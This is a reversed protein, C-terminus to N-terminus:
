NNLILIIIFWVVIYKWIKKWLDMEKKWSFNYQSGWLSRVNRSSLPIIPVWLITIYTTDWYISVWVWNLTFLFAPKGTKKPNWNIDSIYWYSISDIYFICFYWEVEWLNKVAWDRIGDIYDFVDKSEYKWQSLEELYNKINIITTNLVKEDINFLYINEEAFLEVKKFLNNAEVYSWKEFLKKAKLFDDWLLWFVAQNKLNKLSQLKKEDNNLKELKNIRIYAAKNKWEDILKIIPKLEINETIIGYEEKIKHKLWDTWVIKLAFKLVKLVEEDESLNNSLDLMIIRLAKVLNDRILITKSDDYLWIDKFKKLLSNVERYTKKLEAKEDDDFIWDESIDMWELRKVIETLKLYVIDVEKNTKNWKINSFTKNFIKLVEDNWINKSIDHFLDSLYVWLNSKFDELIKKDTSLDDHLFFKKEFLKWFWKNEWLEKFINILKEALVIPTDNIKINELDKDLLILSYLIALNKKNKSKEVLSIAWIFKKKNILNFIKKDEEDEIEFWFFSNILREKPNSLNDISEKIYVKNRYEEILDLDNDFFPVEWIALYKLIDKWRKTIEKQTSSTDLWLINYANYLIMIINNFHLELYIEDNLKECIM